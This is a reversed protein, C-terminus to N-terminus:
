NDATNFLAKTPDITIIEKGKSLAYQICNYTGGSKDGNYCAILKDCRDVMWENRIMMKSASYGGESVIATEIAQKLLRNYVDKSSQPWIKEQGVFPVAAIFPISLDICIQAAWQDWGLAMGSIAKDPKLENLTKKLEKTIYNYIPNPTNYGGLKDPRHGTFAIIM